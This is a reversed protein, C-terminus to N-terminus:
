AYRHTAAYSTRSGRDRNYPRLEASLPTLCVAHPVHGLWMSIMPADPLGTDFYRLPRVTDPTCLNYLSSLTSTRLNQKHAVHGTM